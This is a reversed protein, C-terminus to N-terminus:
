DCDECYKKIFNNLSTIEKDTLPESVDASKDSPVVRLDKKSKSPDSKWEELVRKVKVCESVLYEKYQNKLSVAEMQVRLYNTPVENKELLNEYAYKDQGKMGFPLRRTHETDKGFPDLFIYQHYELGDEDTFNEMKRATGQDIHRKMSMCMLQERIKYDATDWIEAMLQVRMWILNGHREGEGFLLDWADARLKKDDCTIAKKIIKYMEDYSLASFKRVGLVEEEGGSKIKQIIKEIEKFIKKHKAKKNEVEAKRSFIVGVDDVSYILADNKYKKVENAIWDGSLCIIVLPNVQDTKEAWDRNNIFHVTGLDFQSLLEKFYTDNRIERPKCGETETLPVYGIILTDVQM